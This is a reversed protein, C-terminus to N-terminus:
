KLFLNQFYDEISLYGFYIQNPLPDFSTNLPTLIPHIHTQSELNQEPLDKYDSNWQPITYLTSVQTQDQRQRKNATM